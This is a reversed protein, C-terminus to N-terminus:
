SNIQHSLGCSLCISACFNLYGAVEFLVRCSRFSLRLIEFIECAILHLIYDVINQYVFCTLSLSSQFM